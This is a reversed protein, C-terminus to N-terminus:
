RNFRRRAACLVHGHKVWKPAVKGSLFTHRYLIYNAANVLLSDRNKLANALYVSSEYTQSNDATLTSPYGAFWPFLPGAAKGLHAESSHRSNSAIACCEMTKLCITASGITCGFGESPPLYHQATGTGEGCSKTNCFEEQLDELAAREAKPEFRPSIMVELFSTLAGATTTLTLLNTTERRCLPYSRWTGCVCFRSVKPHSAFDRWARPARMASQLVVPRTQVDCQSRAM